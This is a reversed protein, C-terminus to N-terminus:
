NEELNKIYKLELEMKNICRCSYSTLKNLRIIAVKVQEAYFKTKALLFLRKYKLGIEDVVEPTMLPACQSDLKLECFVFEILRLFKIM